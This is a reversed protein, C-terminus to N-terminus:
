VDDGSRLVDPLWDEVNDLPQGLVWAVSARVLVAADGDFWGVNGYTRALNSIVTREDLTYPHDEPENQAVVSALIEKKMMEAAADFKWNWLRDAVQRSVAM